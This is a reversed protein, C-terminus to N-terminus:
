PQGFFFPQGIDTKIKEIMTKTADELVKDPRILEYWFKVGGDRVRYRLRADIQYADGGWFVPIGIAIKDFMKMKQLTQNDDDQVFSMQVGGNQLRVSSKFRMDQNAEFALAMQLLDNSTPMGEVTPIDGMQEELFTAFEVQGFAEREKRTWLKWEESFTPTFSAIHDRWQQGYFDSAHDNIVALFSVSSSAYDAKCYTTTSSIIKHRNVYGVFSELDDLAIRGKKRQPVALLHEDNKEVESWGPPLAFRKIHDQGAIEVPKIQSALEVISEANTQTKIARLTGTENEDEYSM